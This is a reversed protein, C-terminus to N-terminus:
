SINYNLFEILKNFNVPNLVSREILIDLAQLADGSTMINTYIEHDITNMLIHLTAAVKSSPSIVSQFITLSGEELDSEPLGILHFNNPSFMISDNDGGALPHIHVAPKHESSITNSLYYAVEVITSANTEHNADSYLWAHTKLSWPSQGLPSWSLNQIVIFKHDNINM